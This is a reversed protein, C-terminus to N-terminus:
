VSSECGSDGHVQRSGEAPSYSKLRDPCVTSLSELRHARRRRSRYVRDAQNGDAACRAPRIPFVSVEPQCWVAQGSDRETPGNSVSVGELADVWRNPVNDRDRRIVQRLGSPSAAREISPLKRLSSAASWWWLMQCGDLGTGPTATRRPSLAQGFVFVREARTSASLRQPM